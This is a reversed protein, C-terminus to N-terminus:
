YSVNDNFEVYDAGISAGSASHVGLHGLNAVREDVGLM